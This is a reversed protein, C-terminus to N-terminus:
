VLGCTLHHAGSGFPVQYWLGRKHLGQKTTLVTLFGQRFITAAWPKLCPDGFKKTLPGCFSNCFLEFAPSMKRLISTEPYAVNEWILLTKTFFYEKMISLIAKHVPHFPRALRIQGEPWLKAVGPQFCCLRKVHAVAFSLNIYM